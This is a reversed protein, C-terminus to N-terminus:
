YPESYGFKTNEGFSMDLGEAWGTFGKNAQIDNSCPPTPKNTGVYTMTYDMYYLKIM